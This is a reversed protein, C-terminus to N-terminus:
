CMSSLFSRRFQSLFLTHHLRKLLLADFMLSAGCVESQSHLREVRRIGRSIHACPKTRTRSPSRAAKAAELEEASLSFFLFNTRLRMAPATGHAKIKIKSFTEHKYAKVKPISLRVLGSCHDVEISYEFFKIFVWIEIYHLFVRINSYKCTGDSDADIWLFM